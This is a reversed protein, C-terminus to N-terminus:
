AKLAEVGRLHKLRANSLPDPSIESITLTLTKEGKFEAKLDLGLLDAFTRSLALGLGCHDRGTRSEDKRWLREFLHPVDAATLDHVTNSVTLVATEGHWRIEGRGSPPTYEVANSLLNVLISRFLVRDTQITADPPMHFQFDLQKTKATEALPRWVEEMLPAVPISEFHLPSKGNECRAMELLQTVIAEMQLAIDLIERHKEPDAGEPWALEVEALARLEALPTRLEHALDASFRREREFSSELRGLLDNLRATIPQLEKPLSDVPFRTQLSDATIAAAQRALQGLPAHGRRLSISVLPVTIIITLLATVALVTALISLTQNLSERDAAVVLVAERPELKKADEDEAKPSFKLGIARGDNGNPLDLNWFAPKDLSGFRLPLSTDKLSESRAVAHGGAQWVEYVPPEQFDKSTQFLANPAEVQIGDQGQEALPIIAQAKAWLGADFEKLLANRTLFYVALSSLVLLLGFGLLITWTLHGRISKM